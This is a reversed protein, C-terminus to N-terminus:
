LGTDNAGIYEEFPRTNKSTGSFGCLRYLCETIYWKQAKDEESITESYAFEMRMICDNEIKVIEYVHMNGLMGAVIVRGYKRDIPDDENSKRKVLPKDAGLRVSENGWILDVVEDVSQNNNREIYEYTLYSNDTGTMLVSDITTGYIGSKRVTNHTANNFLNTPYAGYFEVNLEHKDWKYFEDPYISNAYDAVINNSLRLEETVDVVEGQSLQIDQVVENEKISDEDAVTVEQKDDNTAVYVTTRDDEARIDDEDINQNNNNVITNSGAGTKRKIVVCAIIAILMISIFVIKKINRNNDSEHKNDISKDKRKDDTSDYKVDYAEPQEYDEKDSETANLLSEFCVPCVNYNGNINAGCKRCIMNNGKDLGDYLM